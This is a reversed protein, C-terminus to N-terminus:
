LGGRSALFAGYGMHSQFAIAVQSCTDHRFVFYVIALFCSWVATTATFWKMM